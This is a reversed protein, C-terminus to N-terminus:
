KDSKPKSKPHLINMECDHAIELFEQKELEELQKGKSDLKENFKVCKEQMLEHTDHSGGVLHFNKGKTVRVEGDENDLGLGLLSAKKDQPVL